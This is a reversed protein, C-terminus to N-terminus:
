AGRALLRAWSSRVWASPSKAGSTRRSVTLRDGVRALSGAAMSARARSAADNGGPLTRTSARMSTM